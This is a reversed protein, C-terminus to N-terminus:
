SRGRAVVLGFKLLICGTIGTQTHRSMQRPGDRFTLGSDGSLWEHISQVVKDQAKALAREALPRRNREVQVPAGEALYDAYEDVAPGLLRVLLHKSTEVAGDTAKILAGAGLVPETM